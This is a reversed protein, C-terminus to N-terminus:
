SFVDHGSQLVVILGLRLSPSYVLRIGPSVACTHYTCTFLTGAVFRQSQRALQLCNLKLRLCLAKKCVRGHSNRTM